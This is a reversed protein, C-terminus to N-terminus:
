IISSLTLYIVVCHIRPHFLCERKPFLHIDAYSLTFKVIVHCIQPFEHLIHECRLYAYAVRTASQLNHYIYCQRRLDFENSAEHSPPQM